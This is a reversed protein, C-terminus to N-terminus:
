EKSDKPWTELEMKKRVNASHENYHREMQLLLSRPTWFRSSKPKKNLDLGDLLYAFRRTFDQVRQIQRAEEEGTWDAHAFQYDKPMQKPNLDMVPISKDMGHYIQSFFLLERGMMHEANWRPTHTGNPPRFNMQEISLSAFLDRTPKQAAEKRAFLKALQESMEYPETGLSVLRPEKAAGSSFAVSNHKFHEVTIDNVKDIDANVIMLRPAFTDVLTEIAAQDFEKGTAVLALRADKEYTAKKSKAVELTAESPMSQLLFVGAGDVSIAVGSEGLPAPSDQEGVSEGGDAPGVVVAVDNEQPSNAMVVKDANAGRRLFIPKGEEVSEALLDMQKAVESDAALGHGVKLGWMTEISIGGDPWSRIAIPHGDDALCHSPTSWFIPLCVFAAVAIFQKTKM